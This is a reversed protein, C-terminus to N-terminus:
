GGRAQSQHIPRGPRFFLRDANNGAAWSSDKLVSTRYREFLYYQNVVTEMCGAAGCRCPPGNPIVKLHGIEGSLGHVGRFLHGDIIIGTGVGTRISVFIFDKSSFQSNAWKEFVAYASTNTELRVRINFIRNLQESITHAVSFEDFGLSPYSIGPKGIGIGDIKKLDISKKKIFDQISDELFKISESMDMPQPTRYSEDALIDGKLNTLVIRTTRLEIDVGIALPCDDALSYLLAHKGKRGASKESFGCTHVIKEDELQNIVKVATAWGMHGEASLQRKTLQGARQLLTVVRRKSESLSDRGTSITAEIPTRNKNTM